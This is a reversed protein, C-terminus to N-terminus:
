LEFGQHRQRYEKAMEGIVRTWRRDMERTWGREARLLNRMNITNSLWTGYSMPGFYGRLLEAVGNVTGWNVGQYTQGWAGLQIQTFIRPVIGGGGGGGIATVALQRTLGGVDQATNTPSPLDPHAAIMDVLTVAQEDSFSWPGTPAPPISRWAAWDLKWPEQLLSSGFTAVILSTRASLLPNNPQVAEFPTAWGLSEWLTPFTAADVLAEAEAIEAPTPRNFALTSQAPSLPWAKAGYRRSWEHQAAELAAHPFRLM